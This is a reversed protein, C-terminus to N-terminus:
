RSYDTCSTGACDYHTLFRKIQAKEESNYQYRNPDFYILRAGSANLDELQPYSLMSSLDINLQRVEPFNRFFRTAEPSPSLIDLTMEEVTGLESFANEDVGNSSLDLCLSLRKLNKVGRFAHSNIARLPKEGCLDVIAGAVLSHRFLDAPLFTIKSLPLYIGQAFPSRISGNWNPDGVSPISPLGSFTGEEFRSIPNERLDLYQLQDLGRFLHSDITKLENDDLRLRRLSFLDRFISKPLQKLQNQSLDLERLSYLYTFDDARLAGISNQKIDLKKVFRLDDIAIRHCSKKLEEEIAQRVQDTRSCVRGRDLRRSIQYNSDDQHLIGLYEHLVLFFKKHRTLKFRDWSSRSVQIQPPVRNPFNLGDIPKRNLELHPASTVKTAKIAANLEQATVELIPQQLLLEVLENGIEVFEGAYDDGGSGLDTSSGGAQPATKDRSSSTPTPHGCGSLLSALFYFLWIKRQSSLRM